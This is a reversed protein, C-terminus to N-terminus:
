QIEITRKQNKPPEFKKFTVELVGNEMKAQIDNIDANEPISFSREFKGYSCEMMHIKKNNNNNNNDKQEKENEKEKDKNDNNNDKDSDYISEREGSIIFTRDDTIEMKVKDKSMGPLDAHIYYNNEDESLNIKPSFDSFKRELSTPKNSKHHRHGNYYPNPIFPFAPILPRNDNNFFDNEFDDDFFPHILSM